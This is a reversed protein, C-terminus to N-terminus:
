LCPRPPRIFFYNFVQDLCAMNLYSKYMVTPKLAGVDFFTSGITSYSGPTVLLFSFSFVLFMPQNGVSTFGINSLLIEQSQRDRQCYGGPNQFPTFQIARTSDRLGLIPFSLSPCKKGAFFVTKFFFLNKQYFTIKSTINLFFFPIKHIKSM